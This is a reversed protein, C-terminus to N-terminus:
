IQQRRSSYPHETIRRHRRIRAYQEYFIFMLHRIVSYNHRHPEQFMVERLENEKGDNRRMLTLWPFTNRPFGLYM